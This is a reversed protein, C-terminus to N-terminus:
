LLFTEDENYNYLIENDQKYILEKFDTDFKKKIDSTLWGHLNNIHDWESISIIHKNDQTLYMNSHIYGTSLKYNHKLNFIYQSTLFDNCVKYNRTIKTLVKISNM